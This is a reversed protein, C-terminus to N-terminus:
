IYQDAIANAIVAAKFRDTSDFTLKIVSSRGQTAVTMKSGFRKLLAPDIEALPARTTGQQDGTRALWSMPNLYTTWSRPKRAPDFEPDLSLNLQKVVREALASSRLVQIQNEISAADTSLGALISEPDFAKNERQGVMILTSSSYIPTLQLVVILAITMCAGVTGAITRRRALVARLLARLDFEAEPSPEHIQPPRPSTAEADPERHWRTAALTM